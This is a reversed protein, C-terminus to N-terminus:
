IHILSLDVSIQLYEDEESGDVSVDMKKPDIGKKKFYISEMISCKM